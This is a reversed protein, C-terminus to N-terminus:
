MFRCLAASIILSFKTLKSIFRVFLPDHRKGGLKKNILKSVDIATIAIAALLLTALAWRPLAVM